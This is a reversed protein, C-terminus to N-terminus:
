REGRAALELVVQKFQNGRDKYDSFMDFSACAPSLLVVDGVKALSRATKVIEAMNSGGNVSKKFGVKDLVSGIDPGQDGILLVVRVNNEAVVGALADYNAGKDSGGLIVVEPKDFAEIAVIATEPTTGFSDDFYSVGDIDAVYELRHELGKFSVLVEKISKPNQAVQWVATLAACVNQWNHKGRLGLESVKCINQDAISIFGNDVIAGPKDFYPIKWGKGTLAIRKSNPNDAFYIAVDDPTQHRFLQTKANYYDDVEPHWDLHEPAVMLCIAIHPSYHFDSLQFSSLELVVWDDKTINHKLLDLVPIGINGGLHVRKGCAELMKAILTSTTGKGKTGTVAIINKSSCVKFFENTNSTVKDLINRDGSASVIARPKVSPSRVIIDFRNLDALYNSGTQTQVDKPVDVTNADCVTVSGKDKWYEFAARGELGYGIIAIKM